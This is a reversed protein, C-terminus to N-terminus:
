TTYLLKRWQEHKRKSSLEAINMNVNVSSQSLGFLFSYNNRKIRTNKFYCRLIGYLFMRIDQFFIPTYFVERNTKRQRRSKWNNERGQELTDVRHLSREM